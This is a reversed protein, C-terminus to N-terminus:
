PTPFVVSGNTKKKLYDRLNQKTPRIYPKGDHFIEWVNDSSDICDYDGNGIPAIAILENFVSLLKKNEIHNQLKDALKHVKLTAAILDSNKFSKKEKDYYLGLTEFSDKAIYGYRLIFIKFQIGIKKVNLISPVSALDKYTLRRDKPIMQVKDKSSSPSSSERSIIIPDKVGPITITLKTM